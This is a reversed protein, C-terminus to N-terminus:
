KRNTKMSTQNFRYFRFGLEYFTRISTNNGVQGVKPKSDELRRVTIVVKAFTMLIRSYLQGGIDQMYFKRQLLIQLLIDEMWEKM